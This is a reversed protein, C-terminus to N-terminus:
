SDLTDCGTCKIKSRCGEDFGEQVEYKGWKQIEM